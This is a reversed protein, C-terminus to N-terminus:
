KEQGYFVQQLHSMISLAIAFEGRGLGSLGLPGHLKSSKQSDLQISHITELDRLLTERKAMPGLQGIYGLHLPYLESLIELDTPYHHSMLLLATRAPDNVYDKPSHDQLRHINKWGQTLRQDWLDSRTTFTQYDWGSVKLMDYLPDIDPGAGVLLVNLSEHPTLCLRTDNLLKQAKHKEFSLVLKGQCGVSHGFLRDNPNRTDIIHEGMNEQLGLAFDVIEGELCGGSIFGESQGNSNIVKLAGKKRYTSGETETLTVIVVLENPDQQTLFQILEKKSKM